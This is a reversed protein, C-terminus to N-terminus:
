PYKICVPWAVIVVGNTATTGQPYSLTQGQGGNGIGATGNGDNAKAQVVPFGQGRAGGGGAAYYLQTGTLNFPLGDGGASVYPGTTGNTQAGPTGAGGGGTGQYNSAGAIGGSAANGQNANNLGGLGDCCAQIIQNAGNGNSCVVTGGASGGSAGAVFSTGGYGDNIIYGGKGGGYATLISSTFPTYPINYTFTTDGGQRGQIGANLPNGGGAGVTINYSGSALPFNDYYVIGGGGGGGAATSNCSSPALVCAGYGGAGGGAVLLLKARGTSGSIINLKAQFSLNLSSSTIPNVTNEFQVYSWSISQSVFSGSTVLGSGSITSFSATICAGQSSFFSTPIYM